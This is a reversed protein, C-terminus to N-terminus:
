LDGDEDDAPITHMNKILRMRNRMKTRTEVLSCNFKEIVLEIFFFLYFYAFNCGDTQGDKQGDATSFLKSLM